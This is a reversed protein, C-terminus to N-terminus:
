ASRTGDPSCLWGFKTSVFDAVMFSAGEGKAYPKAPTDKHYWGKKRQDHTYFITENHFWVIVEQGPLNPGFEPQSDSWNRMRTEM